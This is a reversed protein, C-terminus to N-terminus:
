SLDSSSETDTYFMCNDDQCLSGRREGVLLLHRGLHQPPQGAVGQVDERLGLLVEVRLDLHDVVVVTAASTQLSQPVDRLRAETLGGGGYLEGRVRVM